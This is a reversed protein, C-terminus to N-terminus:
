DNSPGAALELLAARFDYPDTDFDVKQNAAEMAKRLQELEIPLEEIRAAELRLQAYDENMQRVLDSKIM